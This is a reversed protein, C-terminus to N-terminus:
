NFSKNVQKEWLPIKWATIIVHDEDIVLCTQMGERNTKERIMIRIQENFQTENFSLECLEYNELARAIDELLVGREKFRELAHQTTKTGDLRTEEVINRALQSDFFSLQKKTKRYVTKNRHIIKQM